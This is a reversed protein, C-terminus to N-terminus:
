CADVVATWIHHQPAYNPHALEVLSRGAALTTGQPVHCEWTFTGYQTLGEMGVQSQRRPMRQHRSNERM